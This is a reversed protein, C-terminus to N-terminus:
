APDAILVDNALTLGPVETRYAVGLMPLDAKVTRRASLVAGWHPDEAWVPFPCLSFPDGQTIGTFGEPLRIFGAWVTGSVRNAELAAQYGFLDLEYEMDCLLMKRALLGDITILHYAGDAILPVRAATARKDSVSLWFAM